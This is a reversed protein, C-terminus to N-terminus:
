SVQGHPFTRAFRTLFDRAREINEPQAVFDAIEDPTKNTLDFRLFIEPAFRVSVTALVVRLAALMDDGRPSAHALAIPKEVLADRSVLWDIANKLGGPIARVYEPSAVLLGHAAEVRAIYDRVAQPPQAELDPSFIPLDALGDYVEMEIEGPAARALARLLAANTSLRRASGCLALIRM